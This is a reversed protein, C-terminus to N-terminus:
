QAVAYEPVNAPISAQAAVYRKAIVFLRGWSDVGNSAICTQLIVQKSVGYTQYFLDSASLTKGKELDKFSSYPDTPKLAQFHRIQTVIYNEQHGDGYIITFISNQALKPFLSGALTNHALFGLSGFSSASSFQTVTNPQTSIYAANGSPQQVVADAFIGDAFLGTIQSAKGNTVQTTFTALTPLATKAPAVELPRAAGSVPIGISSFVVGFVLALFVIIRLSSPFLRSTPKM